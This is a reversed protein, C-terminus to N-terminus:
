EDSDDMSAFMADLEDLEDDSDETEDADTDPASEFLSEITGLIDDLEKMTETPIDDHRDDEGELLTVEQSSFAEIAHDLEEKPVRDIEANIIEDADLAESILEKTIDLTVEESPEEKSVESSIQESEIDEAGVPDVLPTDIPLEVTEELIEPEDVLSPTEDESIDVPSEATDESSIEETVEVEREDFEEAEYVVKSSADIPLEAEPIVADVAPEVIEP